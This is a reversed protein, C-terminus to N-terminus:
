DPKSDLRLADYQATFEMIGAQTVSVLYARISTSLSVPVLQDLRGFAPAAPVAGPWYLLWAFTAEM